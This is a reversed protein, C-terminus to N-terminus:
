APLSLPRSRAGRLVFVALAAVLAVLLLVQSSGVVFHVRVRTTCVSTPSRFGGCSASCCCPRRARVHRVVAVSPDARFDRVRVPLRGAAVAARHDLPAGLERALGLADGVHGVSRRAVATGCARSARAVVRLDGYGTAAVIWLPDRTARRQGLLRVLLGNLPSIASTPFTVQATPTPSTDGSGTTCRRARPSRRRSSRCSARLDVRGGGRRPLPARRAPVRDPVRADAQARGRDRDAVGRPLRPFVWCFDALILLALFVNIQGLGHRGGGSQLPCGARFRGVRGPPQPRPSPAGYRRLSLQIVYWLALISCVAWVAQEPRQALWAFPAFLLAAAPPYTFPLRLTGVRLAYLDAGHLM